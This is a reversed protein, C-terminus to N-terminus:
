ADREGGKAKKKPKKTPQKELTLLEVKGGAKQIKEQASKSAKAAIITLPVKIEGDGLVKLGDQIKKIKKNEKLYAADVTTGEPIGELDSVNIVAYHKKFINTFGRKPLRRSLPMQGGEFGPKSLGGSRALQGKHGRTATGGHGSGEGRGIRKRNKVAGRPPKLESLLKTM